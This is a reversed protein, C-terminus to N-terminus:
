PTHLVNLPDDTRTNSQVPLPLFSPLPLLFYNVLRPPWWGTERQTQLLQPFLRLASGELESISTLYLTTTEHSGYNIKHVIKLSLAIKLTASLDKINGWFFDCKLHHFRNDQTM